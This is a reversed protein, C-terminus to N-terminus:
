GPISGTRYGMKYLFTGDAQEPVEFDFADAFRDMMNFLFCVYLAEEIAHDNLGVARLPAIDEPTVETPTLTVKELFGLMARLREDIPATRWDELIAKVLAEDGM